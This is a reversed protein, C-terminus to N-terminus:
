CRPIARQIPSLGPGVVQQVMYPYMLKGHNAVAASFM